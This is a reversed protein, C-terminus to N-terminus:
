YVTVRLTKTTNDTQLTLLYVGAKLAPVNFPIEYYAQGEAAQSAWIRGGQLDTLRLIVRNQEHLEVRAVFAGNTPNPYIDFQKIGTERYGLRGASV